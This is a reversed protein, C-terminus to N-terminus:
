LTCYHKIVDHALFFGINILIWGRLMREDSTAKLDLWTMAEGPVGGNLHFLLQEESIGANSFSNRELRIM